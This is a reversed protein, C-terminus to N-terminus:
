AKNEILISVDDAYYYGDAAPKLQKIKENAQKLKKETTYGANWFMRLATKHDVALRDNMKMKHIGTKQQTDPM